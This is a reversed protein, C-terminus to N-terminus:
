DEYLASEIMSLHMYGFKQICLEKVEEETTHGSEILEIVYEKIDENTLYIGFEDYHLIIM